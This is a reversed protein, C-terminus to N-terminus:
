SKRYIRKLNKATFEKEAENKLFRSANYSAGPKFTISLSSNAKITLVVIVEKDFQYHDLPIHVLKDNQQSNSKYNHPYLQGDNVIGRFSDDIYRRLPQQLQATNDVEVSLATFRQPNRLFGRKFSEVKSPYGECTVNADAATVITGDSIVADVTIGLLASLETKTYNDGPCIAIVRDVAATGINGLELTYIDNTADEQEFNQGAGPIFIGKAALLSNEM